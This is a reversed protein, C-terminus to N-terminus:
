MYQFGCFAQWNPIELWLNMLSEDSHNSAEKMYLLGIMVCTNLGPRGIEKAYCANIESDFRSWDIKEALILLLNIPDLIQSLQSRFLDAHSQTSKPQM